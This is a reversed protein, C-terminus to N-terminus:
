RRGATLVADIGALGARLEDDSPWGWGLRFHRWTRGFWHGPGVFVGHEALLTRHWDPDVDIHERIRPFGTV